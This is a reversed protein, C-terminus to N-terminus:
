KATSAYSEGECWAEWVQRYCVEVQQTFGVADMLPSACLRKRMTARLNKLKEINQALTVATAIYTEPDASALEGLGAASLISFSMRSAHTKGYLSVVPCGMWLSECTTTAGSYPHTDLCIDVEHYIQLALDLARAYDRIILRQPAIGLYAFRQTIATKFNRLSDGSMRVKLLLKSNPLRTLIEAWRRIHTDNIKAYMNFSGFTIYGNRVAPLDNVQLTQAVDAPRYCFYSHPMRLLRESSFQEAGEPEVWADTIRYDIASLGTTDSYGLYSIQIPAPTRALVLLSNDRTHGALDVLIDIKDQRIISALKDDSWDYCHHWGGHAYTKFRASISDQKKGTYYLFIEIEESNHAALIPEIFYAVSHDRFDPSLYGIRLRKDATLANKYPKNNKLPLAFLKDFRQHAAYIDERNYATSYHLSQLYSNYKISDQHETLLVIDHNGLIHQQAYFMIENAYEQAAGHLSQPVHQLLETARKMQAWDRAFSEFYYLIYTATFKQAVFKQEKELAKILSQQAEILLDQKLQNAAILYYWQPEQTQELAAQYLALASAFDGNDQQAAALTMLVQADKNLAYAQQAYTLATTVNDNNDLLLQAYLAYCRFHSPFRTTGQQYYATAKQTQGLSQYAQGVVAFLQPGPYRKIGQEGYFIAQQPDGLELSLQALSYYAIELHPNLAIAKKFYQEAEEKRWPDKGSL